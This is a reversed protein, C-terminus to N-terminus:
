STKHHKKLFVMAKSIQKEVAKRSLNFHHAVKEQSIGELKNMKFIQKRPTPLLEISFEMSKLREEKQLKEELLELSEDSLQVEAADRLFPQKKQKSYFNSIEQICTKIVIRETNEKTLSDRTTWLHFFINQMVDLADDRDKIRGIVIGFVRNNYTEYLSQFMHDPTSTHNTYFTM